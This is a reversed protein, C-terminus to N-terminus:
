RSYATGLKDLTANVGDVYAEHHEDHHLEVLQATTRNSPSNDYGRDPLIYPKM